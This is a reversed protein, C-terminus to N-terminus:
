SGEKIMGNLVAIATELQGDTVNDLRGHQWTQAWQEILELFTRELHMRDVRDETLALYEGTDNRHTKRSFYLGGVMFYTGGVATVVHSEGRRGMGYVTVEDGPPNVTVPAEDGRVTVPSVGPVGYV